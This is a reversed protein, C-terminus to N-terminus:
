LCLQRSRQLHRRPQRLIVFGMGLSGTVGILIGDEIRYLDIQRFFPMRAERQVLDRLNTLFSISM